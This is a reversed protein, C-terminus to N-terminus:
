NPRGAEAEPREVVFMQITAAKHDAGKAIVRFLPEKTRVVDWVITSANQMPAKKVEGIKEFPLEKGPRVMATISVVREKEDAKIFVASYNTGALQWLVKGEGEEEGIKEKPPHARDSLKDLKAHAQKLSMGLEVGLVNSIVKVSSANALRVKYPALSNTTAASVSPQPSSQTRPSSAPSADATAGACGHKPFTSGLLM